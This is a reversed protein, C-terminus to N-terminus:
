LRTTRRAVPAFRPRSRSSTSEVALSTPCGLSRGHVGSGARQVGKGEAVQSGPKPTGGQAHGAFRWEHARNYSDYTFSESTRRWLITAHHEM